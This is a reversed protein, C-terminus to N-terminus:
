IYLMNMFNICAAKQQKTEDNYLLIVVVFFFLALIENKRIFCTAKTLGHYTLLCICRTFFYNKKKKCYSTKEKGLVWICKLVVVYM